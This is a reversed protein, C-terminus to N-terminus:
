RRHLANPQGFQAARKYWGIASALDRAVGDGRELAYGYSNMASPVQQNSALRFWHVAEAYDVPIEGQVYLTGLSFQAMAYGQEAARRYWREAERL